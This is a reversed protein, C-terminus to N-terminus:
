EHEAAEAVDAQRKTQYVTGDPHNPPTYISYLKLEAEGTNKINHWTGAPIIFAWDDKVESEEDIKSQERGLTVIGRGHEIRIFQDVNPHVENGIEEGPALSMVTLQLHKGTFLVARFSANKLTVEEINKIWGLM